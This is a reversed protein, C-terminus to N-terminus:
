CPSKLWRIKHHKKYTSPEMFPPVWFDDMELHSKRKYVMWKPSGGIVIYVGMNVPLDGSSGRAGSSKASVCCCSRLATRANGAPRAPRPGPIGPEAGAPGAPPAAPPPLSQSPACSLRRLPPTGRLGQNEDMKPQPNKWFWGATPTTAHSLFGPEWLTKWTMPTGLDDLIVGHTNFQPDGM